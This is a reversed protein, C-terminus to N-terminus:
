SVGVVKSRRELLITDRWLGRLKGIRERRGVERFGCHRHLQLSAHNEPFISAQLTWVGHSEADEILTNLLVRGLGRGRAKSAVYVSVETVGSYVQRPSVRSLACWGLVEDGVRLVSRGFHLHSADWHEWSPVETEFTALGSEIGERYIQAVAQWDAPLMSNIKSIPSSM